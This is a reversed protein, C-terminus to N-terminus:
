RRRRASRMKAFAFVGVTAALPLLFCPAGASAEHFARVQQLLGPLQGIEDLSFKEERGTAVWLKGPQGAPGFAVIFYTGAKALTVDKELLIWSRTSSFPEDFATPDVVDGSTLLVGGLGAPIEFPLSISPLDPGLVAVSPRYNALREIAPLGLQVYLEQGEIGEVTMWLRPADVTVEHYVVKSVDVDGLSIASAASTASGDSVIPQHGLAANASCAVFAVAVSVSKLM